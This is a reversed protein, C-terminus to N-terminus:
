AIAQTKRKWRAPCFTSRRACWDQKEGRSGEPPDATQIGLAATPRQVFDIKRDVPPPLKNEVKAAETTPV